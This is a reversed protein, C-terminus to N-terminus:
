TYCSDNKNVVAAAAAAPPPPPPTHTPANTLTLDSPLWTCIPWFSEVSSFQAMEANLNTWERQEVRAPILCNLYIAMSQTEITTLECGMCTHM